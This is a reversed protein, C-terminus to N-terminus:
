TLDLLNMEKLEQAKLPTVGLNIVLEDVAERDVALYLVTNNICKHGLAKQTTLLDRGSAEFIFKAYTKRFTHTGMKKTRGISVCAENIINSAQRSCLQNKRGHFLYNSEINKIYPYYDELIPRLLLGIKITRGSKKGKINCASIQLEDKVIGTTTYIDVVKISLLESIRLGTLIGMHFLLSNRKSEKQFYETLDIIEDDSFAQCGNM